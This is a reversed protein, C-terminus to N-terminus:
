WLWQRLPLPLIQTKRKSLGCPVTDLISSPHSMRLSASQSPKTAARTLVPLVWFANTRLRGLLLTHSENLLLLLLAQHHSRTLQYFVLADLRLGLNWAQIGPHFSISSTCSASISPSFSYLLLCHSCAQFTRPGKLCLNRCALPFGLSLICPLTALWLARFRPSRGVAQLGATLHGRRRPEKLRLEKATELSEQEFAM